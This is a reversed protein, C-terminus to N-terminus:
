QVQEILKELWIKIAINGQIEQPIYTYEVPFGPFYSNQMSDEGYFGNDTGKITHSGMICFSVM